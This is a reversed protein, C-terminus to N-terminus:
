SALATAAAVFQPARVQGPSHTVGNVTVPEFATGSGFIALGNTGEYCQQATCEAQTKPNSLAFV